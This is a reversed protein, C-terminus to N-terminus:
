VLRPGNELAATLMTRYHQSVDFENTSHYMCIPSFNSFSLFFNRSFASLSILGVVQKDVFKESRPTTQKKGKKERKREVFTCIQTFRLPASLFWLPMVPFDVSLELTLSAFRSCSKPHVTYVAVAIKSTWKWEKNNTMVTNIVGNKANKSWTVNLIFTLFFDGVWAGLSTHKWWKM